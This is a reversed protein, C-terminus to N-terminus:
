YNVATEPKICTCGCDKAENDNQIVSANFYTCTCGQTTNKNIIDITAQGHVVNGGVLEGLEEQTLKIIKM